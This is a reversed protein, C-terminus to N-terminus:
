CLIECKGCIPHKPRFEKLVKAFNKRSTKCIESYTQESINGLDTAKPHVCCPVVMGTATIYFYSKKVFDCAGKAPQIKKTQAYVSQPDKRMHRFKPEFGLPSLLNRWKKQEPKKTCIIRAVLSLKPNYRRKLESVTVLFRILKDWKAPPRLREYDEPTCNGDCSVGFNTVIGQKIVDKLTDTVICQGNTSIDIRRTKFKQNPIQEIITPLDPHLMPDGFLFLRFQDIVDVDVNSLCHNFFEKTVFLPKPKLTSNPCGVCRLHCANTIDFGFKHIRM